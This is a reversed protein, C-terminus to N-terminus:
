SINLDSAFGHPDWSSIKKGMSLVDEAKAEPPYEALDNCAEKGEAQDQNGEAQDQNGEAQNDKEEPQPAPKEDATEEDNTSSSWAWPRCVLVKREEVDEPGAVTYELEYMNVSPAMVLAASAKVNWNKAKASLVREGHMNTGGVIGARYESGKERLTMSGSHSGTGFLHENTVEAEIIIYLLSICVMM